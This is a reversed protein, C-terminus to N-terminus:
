TVASQNCGELLRSASIDSSHGHRWDPFAVRTEIAHDHLLFLLPATLNNMDAKAKM